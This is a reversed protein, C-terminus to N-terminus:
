GSCVSFAQGHRRPNKRGIVADATVATQVTQALADVPFVLSTAAAVAAGFTFQRRGLFKSM